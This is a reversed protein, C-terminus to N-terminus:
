MDTDTDYSSQNNFNNKDLGMSEKYDCPVQYGYKYYPAIHYSSLHEQKVM